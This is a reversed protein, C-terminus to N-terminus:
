IELRSEVGEVRHELLVAMGYVELQLLDPVDSLYSARDSGTKYDIVVPIEANSQALRDIQGVIKRGSGLDLSFAHDVQLTRLQDHRYVTEYHFTLLETGERALWTRLGPAGTGGPLRGVSDGYGELLQSLELSASRERAAYLSSIARHVLEGLLTKASLFLEPDGAIHKFEYAMPCREHLALKSFSEARTKSVRLNDPTAPTTDLLEGVKRATRSASLDTTDLTLDAPVRRLRTETRRIERSWSAGSVPPRWPSRTRLRDQATATQCLLKVVIVRRARPEFESLLEEFTESTGSCEFVLTRALRDGAVFRVIAAPGETRVSAPLEEIQVFDADLASVLRQGLTTKGSSIQGILVIIDRKM